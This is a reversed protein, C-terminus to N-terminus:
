QLDQMKTYALLNSQMKEVISTNTPQIKNPKGTALKKSSKRELGLKSASKQIAKKETKVVKPKEIKEVSDLAQMETMLIQFTMPVLFYRGNLRQLYGFRQGMELTQKVPMKIEEQQLDTNKAITALIERLTAPSNLLQLTHVVIAGNFNPM